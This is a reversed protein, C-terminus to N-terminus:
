IYQSFYFQRNYLILMINVNGIGTIYPVNSNYMDCIDNSSSSNYSYINVVRDNTSIRRINLKCTASTSITSVNPLYIYADGYGCHCLLIEPLPFTLYFTNQEASVTKVECEGFRMVNKLNMKSFSNAMVDGLIEVNNNATLKGSVAL